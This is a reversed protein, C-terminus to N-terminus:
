SHITKALDPYVVAKEKFLYVGLRVTRTDTKLFEVVHDAYTHEITPVALVNWIDTALSRTQWPEIVIPGKSVLANLDLMRSNFIVAGVMFESIVIRRRGVNHLLVSNDAVSGTDVIQIELDAISSVALPSKKSQLMALDAIGAISAVPLAALSTAGLLKLTRRKNTDTM